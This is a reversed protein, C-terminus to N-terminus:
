SQDDIFAQVLHEYLKETPPLPEIHQALCTHVEPKIREDNNNLEYCLNIPYILEDIIVDILICAQVLIIKEQTKTTLIRQATGIIKKGGLNVNYDGDCYSHPTAHVEATLGFGKFFRTLVNCLNIYGQKILDSSSSDARYIHSLNIVGSTQPVPAGGTRRPLILWGNDQLQTTLDPNAQWKQSAPLVVTNDRPQWLLLAQQLDDSKVQSLLEAEKEFAGSVTTETLRVVKYKNKKM